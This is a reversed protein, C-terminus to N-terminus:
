KPNLISGANTIAVMHCGMAVEVHAGAVRGFVEQAAAVQGVRLEEGGRSFLDVIVDSKLRVCNGCVRGVRCVHDLEVQRKRRLEM